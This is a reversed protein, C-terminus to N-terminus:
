NTLENIEISINNENQETPELSAPELSAPELSAPELSATETQATETQATETQATEPVPSAPETIDNTIDIHTTTTLQAHAELHAQVQAMVQELGQELVQELVQQLIKQQEKALATVSMSTEMAFNQSITLKNQLTMIVEELMLIKSELNGIRGFLEEGLEDDIITPTALTSCVDANTSCVNSACLTNFKEDIKNLRQEHLRLIQAPPLPGLIQLTSPDILDNPSPQAIAKGQVSKNAVVNSKNQQPPCSNNKGCSIPPPLQQRQNAELKGRRNKAAAIAASGSM